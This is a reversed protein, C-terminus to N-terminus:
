VVMGGNPSLVQGYYYDGTNQALFLITNAVDNATGLKESPISEKLLDIDTSTLHANMNGLIAGPAVCNVNINSLALEKSLAKTFGIIGAKATSYHVECSAGVIGWISSVNIIKGYKKNVLYPTVYFCTNYISKLNVNIMNDWIDETTDTFMIQQSIGANNVLIDIGNFDCLINSILKKVKLNHSVDCEYIDIHTNYIKLKEKIKTAKNKSTNYVLALNYGNQAFLTATSEGIDGTAGTIVATKM